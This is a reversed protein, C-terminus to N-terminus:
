DFVAASGPGDPPAAAAQGPPWLCVGNRGQRKAEYLAQDARRLLGDGHGDEPQFEAVGFSASLALAEGTATRLQLGAVAARLREALLRGDHAARAQPMLVMFEEGGVRSLQDTERVHAQLTQAILQLARDGMAHGHQDNIRKFHDVDAAIVVFPAGYRRAREWELQLREQLARRNALGTLADLSAQSRLRNLLRLTVLFVFLFNFTGASVLAVAWTGTSVGSAGGIDLPLQRLGWGLLFLNLALQALVPLSAVVAMRVGFELVFAPRAPVFAAMLLLANFGATVAVRTPTDAPGIGALVLLALLPLGCWLADHRRVRLFVLVGRGAFALSLITALSSGAHTLWVPGAPRWAVLAAQAAAALAFGLWHLLAPREEKHIAASLAWVLAYLLLQLSTLLSM